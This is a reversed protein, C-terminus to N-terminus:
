PSPIGTMVSGHAAWDLLLSDCSPLPHSAADCVTKIARDRAAGGGGHPAHEPLGRGARELDAPIPTMATGGGGGENTNAAETLDGEPEGQEDVCAGTGLAAAAAAAAAAM